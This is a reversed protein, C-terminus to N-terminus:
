WRPRVLNEKNGFYCKDWVLDFYEIGHEGYKTKPDYYLTFDEREIRVYQEILKAARLTHEPLVGYNGYHISIRGDYKSSNLKHYERAIYLNFIIRWPSGFGSHYSYNRNKKSYLSKDGKVITRWDDGFVYRLDADMSEAVADRNKPVLLYDIVKHEDVIDIVVSKSAENVESLSKKTAVTAGDNYGKIGFLVPVVFLLFLFGWM